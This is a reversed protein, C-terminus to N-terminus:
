KINEMIKNHIKYVEEENYQVTPCTSRLVTHLTGGVKERQNGINWLLRRVDSKFKNSSDVRDFYAQRAGKYNEKMDKYAFILAVIIGVLVIYIITEGSM